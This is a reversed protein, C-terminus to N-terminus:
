QKNPSLNPALKAATQEQKCRMTTSSLLLATILESGASFVWCGPAESSCPLSLLNGKPMKIKNLLYFQENFCLENVTAGWCGTVAPHIALRECHLRSDNLGQM